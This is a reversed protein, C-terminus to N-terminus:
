TDSGIRAQLWCPGRVATLVLSSPAKHATASSTVHRARVSPAPLQKSPIIGRQSPQLTTPSSGGLQWVAVAVAVLTVLVLLSRRRPLSSLFAAGGAFSPKEPPVPAPPAFRLMLETVLIDGDL